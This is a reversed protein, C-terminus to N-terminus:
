KVLCRDSIYEYAKRTDTPTYAGQEISPMYSYILYLWEGWNAQLKLHLSFHTNITCHNLKPPHSNFIGQFCVSIRRISNASGLLAPPCLELQTWFASRANILPRGPFLSAQAFAEQLSVPPSPRQHLRHNLRALDSKRHLYSGLDPYFTPPQILHNGLARHKGSSFTNTM